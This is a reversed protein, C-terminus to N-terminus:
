AATICRNRMWRGIWGGGVPEEPHLYLGPKARHQGYDRAIVRLLFPQPACVIGPMVWKGHMNRVEAQPYKAALGQGVEKILTGEIVIDIGPQVSAPDLQVGTANTLILM